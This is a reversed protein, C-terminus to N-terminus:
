MAVRVKLFFICCCLRTKKQTIKQKCWRLYCLFLQLSNNFVFSVFKTPLFVHFNLAATLFHSISAALLTFILPLSFYFRVHVCSVFYQTLVYSLEEMFIIHLQSTQRKPRVFCRQLRAFCRCPFSLFTHQVHLNTKQQNSSFTHQVHLKNKQQNSRNTKFGNENGDGNLM